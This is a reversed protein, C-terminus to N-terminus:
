FTVNVGITFTRTTPYKDRWDIGPDLGRTSIVNIGSQANVTGNQMSVEPDIGTYGTIIFTNLTSVYVRASQIYKLAKTKFNYGLTINDIKWYDGDEIYYSNFQQPTKLLTKGYVKDFASRLLNYQKYTPNEYMMRQFNAIQFNFAGRQTISLDWNKYRFSNNWGAYFKPVGNGIVKKDEFSGAFDSKNVPQGDSGEYIWQGYNAADAPDNGIDIVKFGYFDGVSGGVRLLHTFTQVPPGTYGTTLYDSSAKYLENSLSVLKNKNTSYNISTNWEFDNTKIPVFNFMVELGKNEMVGANALTHNVLNPPQPVYYEFLLGDIKRYYYDINGSVRNELMSFDLGINTERKEEWRLYENPNRSPLLTRVWNGNSYVYDGYALTPLGQFINSPQSGTIGYGLRLKIDNFIHMNNMFPEKTVRWGVSVAPFTGWPEKTGYLTSAAEYRLNAMILYKDNYNYSVRSFFGILNTEAKYSRVPDSVKGDKVANGLGINNYGFDDTPFDWNEMFFNSYDNEQYSYGVLVMFNHNNISKTYEATLETLRDISQAGGVNAYGNRSDRLTSIHQKTEAYGNKRNWKAYSFVSSLKLSKMPSYVISGKYRSNQENTLGESEMLDSVPNEYEFKSLEQFWTGDANKVPATPNQLIAQRYIYGNFGNWKTSSNFVNINIKVKNDFMLQNFDVRGSFVQNYSKKFLGESNNYNLNVLYNTNEKGGRITLNHSQIIPTQSIEKLWDTNHGLDTNADRYGAAIQARFDDADSLDLKRAITQTSAYANYEVASKYSGSARKTTIFIVGNTGRTGYIAAASGDKLVDIAEIDQPAVTNMDGPVGDILVLPDVNTSMLSAQGRLLIQTKSNPDGSPSIITLGAVKGQILQGADTVSGKIFNEAKVTAVSSTIDAKKQTGYGIVVVEDLTKIDPSLKIDITNKEAVTVKETLYGVFSFLLVADQSPIDISYKGNIDSIVGVTTGEVIINVGPLPDGTSADTITGSVKLQQTIKELPTVVIVKDVLDYTLNKNAFALALVEAVPKKEVSLNILQEDSITSTKYFIRYETNQEILTFLETIKGNKIDVSIPADQSFGGAYINLLGISLLLTTLKMIRLMKKSHTWLHRRVLKKKKM